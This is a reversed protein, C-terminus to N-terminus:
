YMALISLCSVRAVNVINCDKGLKKILAQDVFGLNDKNQSCCVFFFDTTCDSLLFEKVTLVHVDSTIHNWFTSDLKHPLNKVVVTLKMQFSKLRILLQKGIGGFGYIIARSQFLTKGTPYGIRGTELSTRMGAVNRSLSLALFISHEACSQANGTGESPINCVFVGRSSAAAIDTGELGVGFQLIMKLRSAAQIERSSIRTMFPVVVDADSLESMLNDQSCCEVTINEYSSLAEKSYLFGSRFNRDDCVLVKFSRALRVPSLSRSRLWESARHINAVSVKLM